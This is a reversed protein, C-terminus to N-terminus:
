LWGAKRFWRYLAACSLAMTVLAVPYGWAWKLEPMVEFNMGWVGAFVTALAFIGAWAALRKSTEAEEITVMSLNVQVAMAITERLTDLLANIRALHDVVDRFYDRTPECVGPVRGQTLHSVSELLPAVAHKLLTSRRKLAYLQEVNVRGTGTTFIQEEIADLQAELREIVPFYGDVIADILAYLVFGSGHRLLHPEREARERVAALSHESHNRVSIAFNPGAFIDVEGVVLEDGDGLEVTRVVAFVTDGYEEIKPRQHGTSADEVALEHLDFEARLTELEEPTADHLAVWVFRGPTSLHESIQPLTLDAVKRGDEYAVCTILM